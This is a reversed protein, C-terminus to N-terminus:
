SRDFLTAPANPEATLLNATGDYEGLVVTLLSLVVARHDDDLLDARDSRNRRYREWALDEVFNSYDWGDNRMRELEEYIYGWELILSHMQDPTISKVSPAITIQDYITILTHLLDTILRMVISAIPSNYAMFIESGPSIAQTTRITLTYDALIKVNYRKSDWIWDNAHSMYSADRWEKPFRSPDGDCNMQQVLRLLYPQHTVHLVPKLLLGAYFGICEDRKLPRPASSSLFLGLGAGPITSERIELFERAFTIMRSLIHDNPYLHGLQRQNVLQLSAKLDKTLMSPFCLEINVMGDDASTDDEEEDHEDDDLSIPVQPTGL